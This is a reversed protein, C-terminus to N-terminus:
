FYITSVYALKWKGSAAKLYDSKTEQQYFTNSKGNSITAPSAILTIPNHSTFCKGCELLLLLLKSINAHCLSVFGGRGAEEIDPSVGVVM